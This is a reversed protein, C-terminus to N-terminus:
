EAILILRDIYVAQVENPRKPPACWFYMTANLSHVGLDVMHYELGNIEPVNVVRYAENKKQESDYVGLEMAKGDNATAECRVSAWLHWKKEPASEISKPFNFSTAWEFHDGPMRIARGDSAASDDVRSGWGREAGAIDMAYDQIDIWSVTNFDVGEIKPQKAPNEFMGDFMRLTSTKYGDWVERGSSERYSFNDQSEMFDFLEQIAASPNEVKEVQTDTFAAFTRGEAYRLLRNLDFAVLARRVRLALVPNDAVSARAEDLIKTCKELTPIGLWSSTTGMYCRLYVGSATAEDHITNLYERLKPAAPGYYGTFFENWLAEEDADPNWMLKSIVWNRATVFDGISTFCDGQEFLGITHNKVFFRINPALVRMNPHPLLYHTFNTVYDWVFLNKAIRSWGEMDEKLSINQEGEGLPQVFSCEITCLRVVVNDRPKITKPPKRTYQYALTEVFVDPFEKEIDEAVQNVFQILTGAHSGEADDIAKCKPCTCCNHCDNQSISIFKAGPNKRLEALANKTLEKRMEENTLCLQANEHTRKGDIESFWEPHEGFYKEPPILPYFSHVFYIFQHHDGFAPTVRDHFGNCKSRAAFEGGFADRYFSERYILKPAYQLNPVMVTLNPQNPVDAETSSWWRVGCCDELFTYVAYLSGRQSHGALLIDGFSNTKLVIEDYALADFDVDPFYQRAFPSDGVCFISQDEMAARKGLVPVNKATIIPLEAGTIQKLFSQLENAATQEVPTPEDALLIRCGTKGGKAITLPTTDQAAAAIHSRPLPSLGGAMLCFGTTAFTKLMTRRHFHDTYM